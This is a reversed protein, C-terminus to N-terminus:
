SETKSLMKELIVFDNPSLKVNGNPEILNNLKLKTGVFPVQSSMIANNLVSTDSRTFLDGFREFFFKETDDLWKVLKYIEYAINIEYSKQQEMLLHLVRNLEFVESITINM